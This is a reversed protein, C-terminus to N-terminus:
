FIRLIIKIYKNTVAKYRSKQLFRSKSMRKGNTTGMGAFIMGAFAPIWYEMEVWNTMGTYVPIWYKL